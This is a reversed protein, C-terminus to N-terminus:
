PPAQGEAMGMSPAKLCGHPRPTSCMVVHRMLSAGAWAQAHMHHVTPLNPAQASAPKICVRGHKDSNWKRQMRADSSASIKGGSHLRLLTADPDLGKGALELLGPYLQVATRLIYLICYVIYM